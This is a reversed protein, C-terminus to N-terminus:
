TTLNTIFLPTKDDGATFGLKTYFNVESDYAILIKRAFDQYYDLMKKVIKKGLGQGQYEPRILLYHFYVNMIRDSMSNMLGVLKEGDWASIVRDSNKMAIKLQSPYKGSSWGVSLFLSELDTEQFDHSEKLIISM